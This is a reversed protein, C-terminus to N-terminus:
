QLLLCHFSASLSFFQCIFVIKDLIKKLHAPSSLSVSLQSSNAVSLDCVCDPSTVLFSPGPWRANGASSVRPANAQLYSYSAQNLLGFLLALLALPLSCPPFPSFHPWLTALPRFVPLCQVVELLFTIRSSEQKMSSRKVPLQWPEWQHPLVSSLSSSCLLLIHLVHYNMKLMRSVERRTESQPQFVAYKRRSTSSFRLEM